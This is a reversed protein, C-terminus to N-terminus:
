GRLTKALEELSDAIQQRPVSASEVKDTRENMLARLESLSQEVSKKMTTVEATLKKELAAFREEYDAMQEGFILHRIQDVNSDSGPTPQQKEQQRLPTASTGNYDQEKKGNHLETSM